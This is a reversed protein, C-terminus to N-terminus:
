STHEESRCALGCQILFDASGCFPNGAGQTGQPCVISNCTAATYTGSDQWCQNVCNCNGDYVCSGYSCAGGSCGSCENGPTCLCTGSEPNCEQSQAVAPLASALLASILFILTVLM